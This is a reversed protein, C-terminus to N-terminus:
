VIVFGGNPSIVQGTIFDAQESALFFLLNAVDEPKGLVGLPTEERLGARTEDDLAANMQTDIVGPAVCNVTIGSPGVEKALAKSLGIVAAKAASYAVECSAGTMGWISSLNLIKGRQRRIMGPLVAQCCHFVGTVNVSFLREWETETVDTFLKQQAIGANNILVDIHGFQHLVEKTMRDVQGRDAVDAQVALIGPHSAALARAEKESQCYNAAVQWGKQAFLRAAAAGIGRSAGTILVTSPM